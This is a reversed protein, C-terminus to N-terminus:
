NAQYHRSITMDTKSNRLHLIGGGGHSGVNFFFLTDIKYEDDQEREFRDFLTTLSDIGASFGTGVHCGVKEAQKFGHVKIKTQLMEPRYAQVLHQIYTTMNFYLQHSVVGEIEIDEGYYMAPYLAAVLFADYVDDTLWDAYQEPVSFWLCDQDTFSCALDSVLFCEGNKIEKRLNTIKM